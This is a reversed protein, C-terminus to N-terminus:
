RRGCNTWSQRELISGDQTCTEKPFPLPDRSTPPVRSTTNGLKKVGRLGFGAPGRGRKSGPGRGARGPGGGGSAGRQSPAFLLPDWSSLPDRSTAKEFQSRNPRPFVVLRTGGVLRSGKDRRIIMHPLDLGLKVRKM